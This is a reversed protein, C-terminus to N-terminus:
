NGAYTGSAADFDIQLYIPAVRPQRRMMRQLALLPKTLPYALRYKRSLMREVRTGNEAPLITVTAPWTAGTVKGGATCLAVTVRPNNRIRKAKGTLPGTRALLHGGERVFWVPTSVAVGSRRFTTLSIYRGNKLAVIPDDAMALSRLHMPGNM